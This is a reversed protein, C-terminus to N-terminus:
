YFLSNSNYFFIQKILFNKFQSICISSLYVDRNTLFHNPFYTPKINLVITKWKIFNKMKWHFKLIESHFKIQAFWLRESIWKRIMRFQNSFSKSDKKIFIPQSDIQSLAFSDSITGTKSENPTIGVSFKTRILGLESKNLKFVQNPSVNNRDKLVFKRWLYIFKFFFFFEAPKEKLPYKLKPFLWFDYPATPLRVFSFLATKQRSIKFLTRYILLHM